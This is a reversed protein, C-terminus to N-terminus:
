SLYNNTSTNSYCLRVCLTTRKLKGIQSEENTKITFLQPMNVFVCSEGSVGGAEVTRVVNEVGDEFINVESFWKNCHLLM